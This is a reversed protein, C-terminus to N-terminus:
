AISRAWHGTKAWYNPRGVNPLPPRRRSLNVTQSPPPSQIHLRTKKQKQMKPWKARKESSQVRTACKKAANANEEEKLNSKKETLKFSPMHQNQLFTKFGRLFHMGQFSRQRHSANKCIRECKNQM